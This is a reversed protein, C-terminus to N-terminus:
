RQGKDAAAREAARQGALIELIQDDLVTPKQKWSRVFADVDKRWQKYNPGPGTIKVLADVMDVYRIFTASARLEAPVKALQLRLQEFLAQLQKVSFGGAAHTAEALSRTMAAEIVNQMSFVRPQGRGGSERLPVIIGARVWHEVQPPTAGSWQCLDDLSFTAPKGPVIRM